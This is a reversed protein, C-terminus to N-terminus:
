SKGGGPWFNGMYFVHATVQSVFFAFAREKFIAEAGGPYPFHKVDAVLHALHEAYNQRKEDEDDLNTHFSSHLLPRLIHLAHNPLM